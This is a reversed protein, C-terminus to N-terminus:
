SFLYDEIVLGSTDAEEDLARLSDLVTNVIPKGHRNFSTNALVPYGRKGGQRYADAVAYLLKHLWPETEMSVTQIRATMDYHVIGPLDHAALPLVPVAMTMYPSSFVEGFVDKMADEAIM